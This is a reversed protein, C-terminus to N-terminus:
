IVTMKNLLHSSILLRTWHRHTLILLRTWHNWVLKEMNWHMQSGQLAGTVQFLKTKKKNIKSILLGNQMFRNWPLLFSNLRSKNSKKVEMLNHDYKIPIGNMLIELNEFSSDRPQGFFKLFERFSIERNAFFRSIRPFWIERNPLFFRSVAFNEEWSFKQCYLLNLRILSHLVTVKSPIM